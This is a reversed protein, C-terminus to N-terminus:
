EPRVAAVLGAVFRAAAAEVTHSEAAQRSGRSLRERAHADELLAVVADAYAAADTGPALVVGNVGDDLYEIEPSHLADATTVLPLSAAFADLVVLGVLGPVLLLQSSGLLAAKQEGTVAGVYTAWPRNAVFAEVAPQQEGTGAIWLEFTPLRAAVADAADFLLDLRKHVHLGGLFGCRTAGETDPVEARLRDVDERLQRVDISNGVVTVRSRPFGVAGVYEAVGTTYAFWWDPAKVLRAKVREAQSQASSQFNRGHGWFAVRPGGVWRWLLLVYNLLLRNAQEVVVLDAKAASRLAPQWVLAGNEGPGPLYRNRVTVAGSLRGTSLRHGRAGPAHGHVVSVEVGLRAGQSRIEEFLPVRYNPLTEQVIVVRKADGRTRANLHRRM